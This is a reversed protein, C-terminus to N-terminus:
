RDEIEEYISRSTVFLTAILVLLLVVDVGGTSLLMPDEGFTFFPLVGFIALIAAGLAILLAYIPQVIAELFTHRLIVFTRYMAKLKRTPVEFQLDAYRTAHADRPHM